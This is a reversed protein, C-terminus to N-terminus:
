RPPPADLPGTQCIRGAESRCEALMAHERQARRLSKQLENAVGASFLDRMESTRAQISDFETRDIRGRARAIRAQKAILHCQQAWLYEDAEPDTLIRIGLGEVKAVLEECNDWIAGRLRMLELQFRRPNESAKFGVIDEADSQNIFQGKQLTSYDLPHLKSVDM